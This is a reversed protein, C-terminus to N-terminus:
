KAVWGTDDTNAEKIYLTTNAGGASDLYLCGPPATVANEPTGSGRILFKHSDCGGLYELYGVAFQNSIGSTLNAEFPGLYSKSLTGGADDFYVL